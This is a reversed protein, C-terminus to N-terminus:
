SFVLLLEPSDLTKPRLMGQVSCVQGLCRGKEAPAGLLALPDLRGRPCERTKRDAAYSIISISECWNGKYQQPM